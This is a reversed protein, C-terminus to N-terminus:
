ELKWYVSKIFTVLVKLLLEAPVHKGIETNTIFRIGEEEMLKIRRDVIFKDLKMQPIGYRLLGGVRNKREYVVVAHGVKNLQAAAALGLVLILTVDKNTKSDKWWKTGTKKISKVLTVKFVFGSAPRLPFVM